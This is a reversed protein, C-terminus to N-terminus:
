LTKSFTRVRNPVYLLSSFVSFDLSYTAQNKLTCSSINPTFTFCDFFLRATSFFCGSGFGCGNGGSFLASLKGDRVGFLSGGSGICADGHFGNRCAIEFAGGLGCCVGVCNIDFCFRYWCCSGATQGYRTNGGSGYPDLGLGGMDM